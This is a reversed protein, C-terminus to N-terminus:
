NGMLVYMFCLCLTSIRIYARYAEIDPIIFKILSLSSYVNDIYMSDDIISRSGTGTIGSKWNFM